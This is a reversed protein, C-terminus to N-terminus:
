ATKRREDHAELRVLRRETLSHEARADAKHDRFDDRLERLGDELRDLADKVHSGGNNTTLTQETARAIRKTQVSQWGNYISAVIIGLGVAAAGISNPDM